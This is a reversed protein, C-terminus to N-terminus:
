DEFEILVSLKGSSVRVRQFHWGKCSPETLVILRMMFCDPERVTLTVMFSCHMAQLMAFMLLLRMALALSMVSAFVASLTYLTISFILQSALATLVTATFGVSAFLIALAM